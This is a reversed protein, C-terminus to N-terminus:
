FRVSIEAFVSNSVVGYGNLRDYTAIFSVTRTLFVMLDAGITTSSNRQDTQKVTYGYRQFRVTLDLLQEFSRQMYIGYGTSTTYRNANLNFNSRLNVGSSFVDNFSLSSYNSYDRGFSADVSSRPAYTNYMSIGGPLLVNFSVSMGSRLEDFLLSDPVLRVTEFSYYPRSADAGLGVNLSNSLRYNLNVYASTLKPSLIFNTGQKRRLDVETNAYIFLDQAISANTLVSVAERDLASQFYTRAYATAVSLSLRDPTAYQGFLAFKKYTSSVGRLSFDPQFGFTTGVTFDGVRTSALMGDIYGVSPAFVPIIRGLSFVNDGDDYSVSLGYIRSQNIAKGSFPSQGNVSLTRMNAYVDFKVPADRLVGRMNVVVGPQAINYAANDYLSTYYQASVRGQIQVSSKEVPLISPIGSRPTAASTATDAVLTSDSSPKKEIVVEYA